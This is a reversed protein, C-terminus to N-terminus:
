KHPAASCRRTRERWREADAPACVVHIRSLCTRRAYVSASAEAHVSLLPLPDICETDRAIQPAKTAALKPLTAVGLEAASLISAPSPLDLMSASSARNMASHLARSTFAIM